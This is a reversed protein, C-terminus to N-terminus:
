HNRGRVVQIVVVAAFGLLCLVGLAIDAAKRTRIGQRLSYVGYFALIGLILLIARSNM